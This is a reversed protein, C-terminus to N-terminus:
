KVLKANVTIEIMPNLANSVPCGKKAKEAQDQFDSDSIGPVSAETNLEVKTIRFGAEVKDFHLKATTSVRTPVHGGQSMVNAFAMSFCGAHATAILEEPNTGRGDEFRSTFSYPAEFAGNGFKVTGKGSKLDGEWVGSGTRIPM